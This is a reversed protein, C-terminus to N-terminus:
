KTGNSVIDVFLRRELDLLGLVIIMSERGKFPWKKIHGDLTKISVVFRKAQNDRSGAYWAITEAEKNINDYFFKVLGVKTENDMHM